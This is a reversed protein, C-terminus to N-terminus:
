SKQRGDAMLWLQETKWAVVNSDIGAAIVNEVPLKEQKILRIAYLLALVELTKETIELKKYQSYIEFQSYNLNLSVPLLSQSRTM